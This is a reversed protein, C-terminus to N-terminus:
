VADKDGVPEWRRAFVLIERRQCFPEQRPSGGAWVLEQQLHSLSAPFLSPVKPSLHSLPCLAQWVPRLAQTYTELLSM